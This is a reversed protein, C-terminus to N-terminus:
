LLEIRSVDEGLTTVDYISSGKHSESLKKAIFLFFTLYLFSDKVSHFHGIVPNPIRCLGGGTPISWQNSWRNGVKKKERVGMCFFLFSVYGRTLQTPM